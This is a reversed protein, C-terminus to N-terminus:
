LILCWKQVWSLLCLVTQASTGGVNNIWQYNNRTFQFLLISQPVINCYDSDTTQQFNLSFEFRKLLFDHVTGNVSLLYNLLLQLLYLKSSTSQPPRIKNPSTQILQMNTSMYNTSAIVTTKCITYIYSSIYITSITDTLMLTISYVATGRFWSYACKVFTM